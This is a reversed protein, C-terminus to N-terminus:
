SGLRATVQQIKLDINDRVWGPDWWEVPNVFTDHVLVGFHLHDGGALGTAGTRGIIDGKQVEDGPNVSIESLHSYTTMLGFGHDIVVTNGYIGVNDTFVVRGKNGAPVPSQRISALDAGLHVQRDIEQGKYKYIRHDAFGARPASNPLRLFAGDWFRIKETREGLATLITYNEKRIKRNVHLFLDKNSTAQGDQASFTGKLRTEVFRDSINLTDNRFRKQRIRYPFGATTLNGATDTATVAISTSSNQDYAVAFLSIYVDSDDFFGPYAPYFHEGVTVGLRPCAESVKFAVLGAGGQNIYHSTTLVSVRPPMTDIPVKREIESLNGNFWRRWSYDAAAVRLIGEGDPLGLKQPAISIRIDADRRNGTGLLTSGDYTEEFLTREQGGATLTVKIFRLGRGSDTASISLEQSKGLATVDPELVVEPPVGELRTFFYWGGPVLIGLAVIILLIRVPSLGSSKM